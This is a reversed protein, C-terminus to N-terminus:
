EFLANEYHRIHDKGRPDFEVTVVDIRWHDDTKLIQQMYHMASDIMHEKKEDTISEGPNGDQQYRRTKVEVFVYEKEAVKPSLVLIDIEGYPTFFNREILLYGKSSLYEAARDEGNKGIQLKNM